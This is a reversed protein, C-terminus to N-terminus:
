GRTRPKMVDATQRALQSFFDESWVDLSNQQATPIFRRVDDVAARWDIDHFRSELAKQLFEPTVRVRKGSFPGQQKLANELLVPDPAIRRAAYWVFDYLDRGKVYPRCLLAHTKTALGSELTQSVIPVPRPFTLYLIESKVGAPPDADVELKIRIKKRPDRHFSLVTGTADVGGIKLFAKKVTQGLSNKFSPEVDIGQSALDRVAVDITKGWAFGRDPTKLMFDLDESFRDMRHLMRLCTGGHFVASKFFGAKALSALVFHQLIEQLANEQEMANTPAYDALRSEVARIIM